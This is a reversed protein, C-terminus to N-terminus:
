HVGVREGEWPGPWCTAGPGPAPAPSSRSSTTRSPTSPCAWGRALARTDSGWALQRLLETERQTLGYARGFLDLREGPSAPEITVAIAGRVAAPADDMRAARVSLWHGGSLHVRAAPPNGDVGDEVALLQAGVNYAAAPVPRGGGEPPVLGAPLADTQPTQALLSLEPSLLLM